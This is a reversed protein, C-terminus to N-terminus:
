LGFDQLLGANKTLEHVVHVFDFRHFHNQLAHFGGLAIDFEEVHHTAAALFCSKCGRNPMCTMSKMGYDRKERFTGQFPGLAATAVSRLSFIMFSPM